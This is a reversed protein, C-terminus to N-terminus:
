WRDTRFPSAPLAEKNSLNPEATQHWGFRVAVPGAVEPSSVIVTEGDIEAGAEVFQRDEGAIPRGIYRNPDGKSSRGPIPTPEVRIVRWGM